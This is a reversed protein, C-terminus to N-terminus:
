LEMICSVSDEEMNESTNKLIYKDEVYKLVEVKNKIYFLIEM